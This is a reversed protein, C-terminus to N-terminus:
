STGDARASMPQDGNTIRKLFDEPAKYVMVHFHEVIGDARYKSRTVSYEGLAHVSKLNKWNKFWRVQGGREMGEWAFTRRVFGDILDRAHDALNGSEEDDDLVFKTWVVLHKIEPDIAYPWDNYLISYDDPNEFPSSSSPTITNWHLRENQVFSLVSGHNLKLDYIYQQYRRLQSPIRHFHDIHNLAPLTLILYSSATTREQTSITTTV